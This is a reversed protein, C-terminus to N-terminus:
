TLPGPMDHRLPRNAKQAIFPILPPPACTSLRARPQATANRRPSAVLSTRPFTAISPRSQTFSSGQRASTPPNSPLALKSQATSFLRAPCM